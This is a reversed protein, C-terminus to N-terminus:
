AQSHRWIYPCKWSLPLLLLLMNRKAYHAHASVLRHKTPQDNVSRGVLELLKTIFKSLHRSISTSTCTKRTSRNFHSANKPNECPSRSELCFLPSASSLFISAYLFLYILQPRYILIDSAVFVALSFFFMSLILRLPPLRLRSASCFSRCSPPLFCTFSFYCLLFNHVTTRQKLRIGLIFLSRFSWAAKDKRESTEDVFYNLPNGCLTASFRQKDGGSSFSRIWNQDLGTLHLDESLLFSGILGQWIGEYGSTSPSFGAVTGSQGGYIGNHVPILGM